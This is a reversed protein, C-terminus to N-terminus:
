MKKCKERSAKGTGSRDSSQSQLGFNWPSNPEGSDLMPSRNANKPVLSMMPESKAVVREEEGPNGEQPRKSMIKSKNVSTFLSCSFVSFSMLFIIENVVLSIAKRKFTQSNTKKPILMKSKSNPAWSSQILCGILVLRHTRSVHRMTPSGGKTIMKIVAEDAEFIYHLAAFHSTKKRKHYRTWM